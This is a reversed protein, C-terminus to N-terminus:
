KRKLRNETDMIVKIETSQEEEIALLGNKIIVKPYKKKVTLRKNDKYFHEEEIALLGNKIIVKPYKKKVTLRKNDKYFGHYPEYRIISLDNHVDLRGLM